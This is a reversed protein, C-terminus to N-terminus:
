GVSARWIRWVSPESTFLGKHILAAPDRICEVMVSSGLCNVVLYVWYRPGLRRAATLEGSTLEFCTFAAGTAGKVEVANLEGATDVYEIDWGPTEGIIAVHRIDTAGAVRERIYRVAIEEARDGVIKASQSRRARPVGRRITDQGDVAIEVRRSHPMMLTRTSLEIQISALEPLGIRPPLSNPALEEDPIQGAAALIRAFVGHPVERVGNRWRNAKITEFFIGDVKAPVAVPFPMYDEIGCYWAWKGKPATSSVSPDEWIDGIVGRGFYEAQGRRGRLRRIGRYYVFYEGSRIMNRYSNPYHYRVGTVDKWAYRDTANVENSVLVLPM